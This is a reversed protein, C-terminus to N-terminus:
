RISQQIIAAALTAGGTSSNIEITYASIPLTLQAFQNTTANTMAVIPSILDTPLPNLKQLTVFFTYNIVGTVSIQIGYNAVYKNYDAPLWVSSGTQGIGASVAAASGSATISIISDYTNVSTVTNNNPGALTETLIQGIDTGTIVFNVGSLNNTSTLTIKRLMPWLNVVPNNSVSLHGNLLLNGAGVLTQTQAIAASDAAIWNFISPQAM